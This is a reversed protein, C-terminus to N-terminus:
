TCPNQPQGAVKLSGCSSENREIEEYACNHKARQVSRVFLVRVANAKELYQVLKGEAKGPVLRVQAAPAAQVLQDGLNRAFRLVGKKPASKMQKRQNEM